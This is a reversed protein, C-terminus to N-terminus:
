QLCSAAGNKGLEDLLGREHSDGDIGLRKGAAGDIGFGQNFEDLLGDALLRSLRMGVAVAM